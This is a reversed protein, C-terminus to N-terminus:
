GYDATGYGVGEKEQILFLIEVSLYRNEDIECESFKGLFRRLESCHGNM